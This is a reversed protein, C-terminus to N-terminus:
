NVVTGCHIIRLLLIAILVIYAIDTVVARSNGVCILSIKITIAEAIDAVVTGVVAVALLKIRIMVPDAINAIGCRAAAAATLRETFLLASILYFCIAHYVLSFAVASCNSNGKKIIFLITREQIHSFDEGGDEIL